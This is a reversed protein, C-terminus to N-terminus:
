GRVDLQTNRYTVWVWGSTPRGLTTAPDFQTFLLSNGIAKRLEKKDADSLGEPPMYDIVRGDGDVLVYLSFEEPATTDMMTAKLLPSTTLITPIDNPQPGVFVGRFGTMVALFLLLASVLGGAAPLAFPRMMLDFRFRLSEGLSRLRTKFDVKRRRRAAERSALVRLTMSLEPSVPKVPAARLANRTAIMGAHRAGCEACEGIHQEVAQRESDIIRDDLFASLLYRIQLCDM